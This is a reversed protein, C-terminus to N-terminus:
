GFGFLLNTAPTYPFYGKTNNELSPKWDWYSKPFNSTKSAELAKSSVAHFGLGPPLMLGKQSASITVDVHWEDHRYDTCGLSSVADVLLLAPHDIRDM